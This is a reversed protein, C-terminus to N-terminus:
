GDLQDEEYGENLIENIMEAHVEKYAFLTEVFEDDDMGEDQYDDIIANICQAYGYDIWIPIKYESEEIFSLISKRIEDTFDSM